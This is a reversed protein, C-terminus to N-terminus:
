RGYLERVRGLLKRPSFPKIFVEAAGLAEAERRISTEGRATLVVIPLDEALSRAERLVDLGSMGPMMLDLIVLGISADSRLSELASRGDGALTVRFAADELLTELMRAIHPEDEVILAHAPAGGGAGGARAADRAPGRLGEGARRHESHSDLPM